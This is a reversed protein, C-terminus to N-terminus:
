DAIGAESFFQLEVPLSKLKKVLLGRHVVEVIARFHLCDVIWLYLNQQLFSSTRLFDDDEVM